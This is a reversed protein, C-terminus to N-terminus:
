LGSERDASGRLELTPDLESPYLWRWRALALARTTKANAALYKVQELLPLSRLNAHDTEVPTIGLYAKAVPILSHAVGLASALQKYSTRIDLHRHTYWTARYAGPHGLLMPPPLDIQPDFRLKLGTSLHNHELRDALIPLDFGAGNWTVIITPTLQTIFGELDVLLQTEEGSFVEEYGPGALAVATVINNKPDIPAEPNDIAVDLALVPIDGLILHEARTDPAVDAHLHTPTTL